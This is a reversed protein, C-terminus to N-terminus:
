RGLTAGTLGRRLLRTCIHGLSWGPSGLGQLWHHGVGVPGGPAFSGPPGLLQRLAVRQAGLLGPQPASRVSAVHMRGASRSSEHRVQVLLCM